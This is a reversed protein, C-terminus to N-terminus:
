KFHEYAALGFILHHMVHFKSGCLKKFHLTPAFNLGLQLNTHSMASHFIHSIVAGM